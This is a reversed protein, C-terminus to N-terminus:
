RAHASERLRRRSESLSIFEETGADAHARRAELVDAHWAPSSGQASDSLSAWLLEMSQVKEATTMRNIQELLLPM